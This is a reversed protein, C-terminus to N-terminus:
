HKPKLLYIAFLGNLDVWHRIEAFGSNSALSLFEDTEYKYSNETHMSEGEEFEFFHDKVRLTQKHKSVLHMEIRGVDVNYFAHHEFDAPELDTDLEQRLRHLLNLNFAATIGAADNYAANLVSETKKTDVGILLMGDNDLVQRVMSLFEGAEEPDFNGLSSGPFFVLRPADPVAQPVPLSYTYDACVAHISLWPYEDALQIAASRLYDSSIDIPVFAAPSLTNLLLRAKTANGAGPEILVRGKGTLTSIEHIFSELMCVEVSPLYYEPQECILDFLKSGRENYFFKPPISKNNRSLGDVVSEYLSIARPKYDHFTINGM